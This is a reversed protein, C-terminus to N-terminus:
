WLGETTVVSGIPEGFLLQGAEKAVRYAAKRRILRGDNLLFGQWDDGGVPGVYGAERMKRIVDHHRGPIPVSHVGGLDDRIAARVIRLPTGTGRCGTVARPVHNLSKGRENTM